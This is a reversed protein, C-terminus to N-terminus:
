AHNFGKLAQFDRRDDRHIHIGTLLSDAIAHARASVLETAAPNSELEHLTADFLVLWRRFHFSGIGPIASHVAMPSGNFHGEGLLIAAWFQKMRALHAPWDTVKAAFVPALVPDIHVKAYFQEVLQSIFDQDIGLATAAALKAARAAVAVPHASSM